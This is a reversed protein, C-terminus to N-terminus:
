GAYTYVTKETEKTKIAEDDLTDMDWQQVVWAPPYSHVAYPPEGRWEKNKICNTFRRKASLYRADINEEYSKDLIFIKILFPAKTRQVLFIFTSKRGTILDYTRRYHPNQIYKGGWLENKEWQKFSLGTTKYDVILDPYNQDIWDLKARLWIDGDKAFAAQEPNGDLLLLPYDRHKSLQESLSKKMAKVDDLISKTSANLAIKGQAEIEAKKSKADNKRWDNFENCIVFNSLTGQLIYEHAMTGLDMVDSKANEYEPNFRRQNLMAELETDELIQNALTSSLSPEVCPDAHYEDDTMEYFGSKDIIM